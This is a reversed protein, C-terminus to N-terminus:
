CLECYWCLLQLFTGLMEIPFGIMYNHILIRWLIINTTPWPIDTDTYIDKKYCCIWEQKRMPPPCCSIIICINCIFVGKNIAEKIIQTNSTIAQLVELVLEQATIFFSPIYM